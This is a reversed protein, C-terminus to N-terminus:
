ITLRLYRISVPPESWTPNAFAQPHATQDSVPVLLDTL